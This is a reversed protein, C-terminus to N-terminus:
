TKEIKKEELRLRKLENELRLKEMRLRKLKKELEKIKGEEIWEGFWIREDFDKSNKLLNELHSKQLEFNSSDELLKKIHDKSNLKKRVKIHDKWFIESTQQSLTNITGIRYVSNEGLIKRV